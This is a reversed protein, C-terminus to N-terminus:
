GPSKNRHTTSCSGIAHSLWFPLVHSWRDAMWRVLSKPPHWNLSDVVFHRRTAEPTSPVTRARHPMFDEELRPPGMSPAGGTGQMGDINAILTV